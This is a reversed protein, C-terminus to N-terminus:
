PAGCAPEADQVEVRGGGGPVRLLGGVTEGGARLRAPASAHDRRDVLISTPSAAALAYIVEDGARDLRSREIRDPRGLSGFLADLMTDKDILPLSLSRGLLTGVTITGSAPLGSAV